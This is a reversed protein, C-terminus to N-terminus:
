IRGKTEIALRCFQDIRGQKIVCDKDFMQNIYKCKLRMQMLWLIVLPNREIFIESYTNSIVEIFNQCENICSEEEFKLFGPISRFNTIGYYKAGDGWLRSESSNFLFFVKHGESNVEDIYETDVKRRLEEYVNLDSASSACITLLEDDVLCEEVLHQDFKELILESHQKSNFYNCIDKILTLTVLSAREKIEM